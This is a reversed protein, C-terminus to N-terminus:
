RMASPALTSSEHALAALAAQVAPTPQRSPCHLVYASVIGPTHEATACRFEIGTATFRELEPPLPAEVIARAHLATMHPKYEISALTVTGPPVANRTLTNIVERAEIMRTQRDHHGCYVRNWLLETALFCVNGKADAVLEGQLALTLYSMAGRSANYRQFAFPMANVEYIGRSETVLYLRARAQLLLCREAGAFTWSAWYSADLVHVDFADTALVGAYVPARTPNNRLLLQKLSTELETRAEEDLRCGVRAVLM